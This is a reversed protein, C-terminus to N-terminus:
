APPRRSSLEFAAGSSIRTLAVESPEPEPVAEPDIGIEWVAVADGDGALPRCWARPNVGRVIANMARHDPEAALLAVWSYRDGEDLAPCNGLAVRGAADGTGGFTVSVYERPMFLPHLALVRLITNLGADGDRSEPAVLNRLRESAIAGIGTLQAGTIELAADKGAREALTLMFARVLLHAQVCFEKCVTVLAPVSLDEMEFAPDFEGSYDSRGGPAADPLVDLELGALLSNRVLGTLPIEEAPPNQPDITTTWHCHPERGAPDRPPRHLPLIKAHPNTAVATAPFTPDEIDHCMLHVVDDGMPEADLLAGCSRLWFEGTHADTVAFEVDMFQHAFGIDLQLGKFITPVDDGSFGLATQMRRTYVPSAGMWEQIAVERMADLGFRALVQPIGARDVLHGILMYERALRALEGRELPYLGSDM